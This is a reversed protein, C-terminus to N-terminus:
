IRLGPAWATNIPYKQKRGQEKWRTLGMSYLTQSLNGYSSDSIFTQQQSPKNSSSNRKSLSICTIWGQLHALHFCIGQRWSQCSIELAPTLATVAHWLVWNIRQNQTKWIRKGGANDLISSFQMEGLGKHTHAPHLLFLWCSVPQLYVSIHLCTLSLSTTGLAKSWSAQHNTLPVRKEPPPRLRNTSRISIQSLRTQDIEGRPLLLSLRVPLHM